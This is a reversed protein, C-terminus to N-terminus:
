PMGPEDKVELFPALELPRVLRVECTGTATARLDGLLLFESSWADHQGEKLLEFRVECEPDNKAALQLQKILYEVKM